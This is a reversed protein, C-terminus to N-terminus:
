GALSDCVARIWIAVAKAGPDPGHFNEVAVYAARGARAKMTITAEAGMEAAVAAEELLSTWKGPKANQLVNKVPDLADIFPWKSTKFCRVMTRDGIEAGSYKKLNAIGECFAEIWLTQLDAESNAHLFCRCAGALFLSYLAGSSGGMDSACIESITELAKGPNQLNIVQKELGVMIGNAGRNITSGCDGDGARSDLDNLVHESARLAAIISLLANHFLIVGTKDLLVPTVTTDGEEDVEISGIQLAIRCPTFRNTSIKSLLPRPWAVADTPSDLWPLWRKKCIEDGLKFISIQVGAMELSTMFHGTYARLVALNRHETAFKFETKKKKFTSYRWLFFFNGEGLLAVVERCVILEELQSTGGLNNVLLAIEEDNGLELSNQNQPDTMHTIMATVVDTIPKLKMRAVGAEGHVGLGLEIEDPGLSFLPPQGPLSCPNLCVGITGIRTAAFRLEAIIESLSTGAEAMAGAIKLLFMNGAMGRRGVAQAGTNATDDGNVFMEVNIKDLKAKEVALGFNLRDGTYNFVFVLIGSPEYQALHRILPYTQQMPPSAFIPGPVAATLMGKGVYGASFPEHGSGGGSIVAVKGRIVELDELVVNRSKGLLRLGPNMAVLGELAEDACKDLNEGVLKKTVEVSM